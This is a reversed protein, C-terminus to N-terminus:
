VHEWFEPYGGFKEKAEEITIPVWYKQILVLEEFWPKETSDTGKEWLGKVPHNFTKYIVVGKEHKIIKILIDHPPIYYFDSLLGKNIIDSVIDDYWNHEENETLKIYGIKDTDITEFGDYAIIFEKGDSIRKLKYIKEDTGPHKFFKNKYFLCIDGNKPNALNLYLRLQAITLENERIYKIKEPTLNSINLYEMAELYQPYHLGDDTVVVIETDEINKKVKGVIDDYWDSNNETIVSEDDKNERLFSFGKENMLFEKGDSVRKLKFITENQNSTNKYFKNLFIYCIDGNRPDSINLSEELYKFWDSSKLSRRLDKLRNLLPLTMNSIGLYFMADLHSPYHEGYDTVIVKKIRPSESSFDKVIDDYWEESM